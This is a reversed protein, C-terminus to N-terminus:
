ISFEFISVISVSHLEHGGPLTALLFKYIYIYIYIYMIHIYIYIYVYIYICIYIYIYIQNSECNGTRSRLAEKEPLRFHAMMPTGHRPDTEARKAQPSITLKLMDDFHQFHQAKQSVMACRRHCVLLQGSRESSPPNLPTNNRLTDDNNTTNTNNTNNDNNNNNNNNDDNNIYIYICMYIYIYIYTNREGVIIM